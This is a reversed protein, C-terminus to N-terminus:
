ADPGEMLRLDDLDLEEMIDHVGLEEDEEDTFEHRSVPEAKAKPDDPDDRPPDSASEEPEKDRPM